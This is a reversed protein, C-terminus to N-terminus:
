DKSRFQRPVIIYESANTSYYIWFLLFQNFCCWLWKWKFCNRVLAVMKQQKSTNEAHFFKFLQMDYNNKWAKDPHKTTALFIALQKQKTTIFINLNQTTKSNWILLHQSPSGLQNISEIFSTSGEKRIFLVWCM